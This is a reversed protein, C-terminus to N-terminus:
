GVLVEGPAHQHAGNKRAHIISLAIGLPGIRGVLMTVILIWKGACSLDPTLGMSLGVTGLASGAEFLIALFSGRETVTLALVASALWAASLLVVAMAKSIMEESVRRRFVELGDRGRLQGLLSLVVVSFTTVKVGGGTSGTGAGIFMVIVLLFLSPVSMKGIDISNFGTTTTTTFSQFAATLTRQGLSLNADWHELCLIGVVGTLSVLATVV